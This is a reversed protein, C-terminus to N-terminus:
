EQRLREGVQLRGTGGCLDAAIEEAERSTEPGMVVFMEVSLPYKRDVISANSPFIGDVALVRCGMDEVRGIVQYPLLAISFPNKRLSEFVMSLLSINKLNEPVSRGPFLRREILVTSPHDAALTLIENRGEGKGIGEVRGAWLDFLAERSVQFVKSSRNMVAIVALYGLHRARLGRLRDRHTLPLSTVGLDLKGAKLLSLIREHPSPVTLIRIDPHRSELGNRIGGQGIFSHVADLGIRVTKKKEGPDRVAAVPRVRESGMGNGGAVIREVGGGLPIRESLVALVEPPPSEVSVPDGQFAM